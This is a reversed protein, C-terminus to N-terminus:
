VFKPVSKPPLATNASGNKSAHQQQRPMNKQTRSRATSLASSCLNRRAAQMYPGAGFDRKRWVARHAMFSMTCNTKRECKNETILNVAVSLKTQGNLFVRGLQTKDNETLLKAIKALALRPSHRRTSTQSRDGLTLQPPDSWHRGHHKRVDPHTALDKARAPDLSHDLLRDRKQASQRVWLKAIQAHRFGLGGRNSSADCAVSCIATQHHAFRRFVFANSGCCCDSLSFGVKRGDVGGSSQAEARM